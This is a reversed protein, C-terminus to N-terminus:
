LGKAEEEKSIGLGQPPHIQYLCGVGLWLAAQFQYRSPLQYRWCITEPYIFCVGPCVMHGPIILWCLISGTINRYTHSQKNQFIIDWQTIKNPQTRKKKPTEKLSLPFFFMQISLHFHFISFYQMYIKFLFLDISVVLLIFYLSTRLDFALFPYQKIKM